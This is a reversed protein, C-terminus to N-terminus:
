EIWNMDVIVEINLMKRDLINLFDFVLWGELSVGLFIDIGLINFVYLM